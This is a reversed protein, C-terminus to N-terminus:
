TSRSSVAACPLRLEFAAGTAGMGDYRLDGQMDRALRRSLSLGLGVGPATIAAQDASKRFPQFLRAQQAPSIGPGYDSVRLVFDEGAVHATLEIRPRSGNAAYKCANDVLNFLIQEVASPDALVVASVADPAVTLALELEAQGARDGLRTTAASLLQDATVCQIRNGLGGRELRAYALVNEVLHTLRDAEIRLTDLYQRRRSEDGVMGESLMEAYMRFTTLPTRLEHTVASVFDARRESLSVVGRLLVAVAAAALLMAGWAVVLALRVPSLGIAPYRPPLGPDLQVPLSALLRASEPVAAGTRQVALRAAPLLDAIQGLLDDRIAPWNLWVGQIYSLGGATARRALLLEEDFVLPTLVGVHPSMPGPVLFLPNLGTNYNALNGNITMNNQSLYQSRARYENDGRVQQQLRQDVPLQEPPTLTNNEQLTQVPESLIALPPLLESLQSFRITRQLRALTGREDLIRDRLEPISSLQEESLGDFSGPSSYQGESTAHFYLQIQPDSPTMLSKGASAARLEDPAPLPQSLYAEFPRANEQALRVALASDMRWLALRVNEELTAQQRITMEAQEAALARVSLWGVAAAVAALCVSFALWIEWPRKVKVVVHFSSEM